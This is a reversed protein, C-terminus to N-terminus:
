RRSQNLKKLAAKQLKPLLYPAHEKIDGFTWELISTSEAAVVDATRKNYIGIIGIERLIEGSKMVALVNGNEGVINMQGFILICFTDDAKEGKHYLFEGESLLKTQANDILFDLRTDDLDAFLANQRVVKKKLWHKADRTEM